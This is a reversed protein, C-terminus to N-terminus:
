SSVVMMVVELLLRVDRLLGWVGSLIVVVVGKEHTSMVVAVVVDVVDVVKVDVGSGARLSSSSSSSMELESSANIIITATAAIPTNTM